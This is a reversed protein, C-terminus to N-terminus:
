YLLVVTIYKPVSANSGGESTTGARYKGKLGNFKTKFIKLEDNINKNNSGTPSRM